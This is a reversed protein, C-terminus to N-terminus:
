RGSKQIYGLSELETRIDNEVESSTDIHEQRSRSKYKDIYLPEQSNVFDPSFIDIRPKGDLNRAVPLGMWYALTPMVDVIHIGDGKQKKAIGPGSAIFVGDPANWHQGSRPHIIMSTVSMLPIDQNRWRIISQFEPGPDLMLSILEGKKDGPLVSSFLKKGDFTLSKLQRILNNRRTIPLSGTGTWAVGRRLGPPYRHNDRFDHFDVSGGSLRSITRILKGLDLGEVLPPLKSVPDMGHDSVILIATEPGMLRSFEGLWQDLYKYYAQVIGTQEVPVEPISLANQNVDKLYEHELIDIGRTFILAIDFSDQELMKKSADLYFRDKLLQKSFFEPLKIPQNLPNLNSLEAELQRCPIRSLNSIMPEIDDPYVSHTIQPFHARNSLMVGNIPEVPWTAWWNSLFVRKEGSINWLAPVKRRDSTIALQGSTDIGESLWNSIGHHEPLQGTAITTWLIVSVTPNLTKLNTSYGSEIVAAINPLYGKQCLPILVNWAVADIGFILLKEPGGALNSRPLCYHTKTGELMLNPFSKTETYQSHILSMFRDRRTQEIPELYPLSLNFSMDGYVLMAGSRNSVFDKMIDFNLVNFHRCKSTEWDAFLDSGAMGSLVDRGAETAVLASDATFIKDTESTNARIYDAQEWLAQMAPQGDIISISRRGYALISLAFLVIVILRSVQRKEKQMKKYRSYWEISLLCLFFPMIITQYSVQYLKASSHVVLMGLTLVWLAGVPTFIRSIHRSLKESRFGALYDIVIPIFLLWAPFYFRILQSTARAKQVLNAQLNNSHLSLNMGLLNFWLRDVGAQIVFPLYILFVVLFGIAPPIIKDPIKKGRIVIYIAAFLFMPLITLRTGLALAFASMAFIGNSLGPRDKALLSYAGLALFFTTISYLRTITFFYIQFPVMTILALFLIEAKASGSLKNVLKGLIIISLVGFLISTLRGWLLGPLLLQVLGYIYPHLPPQLFFFDKYLMKGNYVARAAYMYAGEDLHLSGAFLYLFSLAGYVFWIIHNLHKQISKYM